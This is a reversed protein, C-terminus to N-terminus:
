HATQNFSNSLLPSTQSVLLIDAVVEDNWIQQYTSRLNKMDGLDCEYKAFKRGLGTVAEETRQSGADNPLEISVIDAGASALATTMATGLGGTGGTVIATKGQLSFLKTVDITPAAAMKPSFDNIWRQHATSLAICHLYGSVESLTIAIQLCEGNLYERSWAPNETAQDHNGVTRRELRFNSARPQWRM